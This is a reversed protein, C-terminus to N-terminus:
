LPTNSRTGPAAYYADSAVGNVDPCHGCIYTLASLKAMMEGTTIAGTDRCDLIALVDLQVM